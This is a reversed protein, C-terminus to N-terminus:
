LPPSKSVRGPDTQGTPREFRAFGISYRGAGATDASVGCRAWYPDSSPSDFAGTVDCIRETLLAGDPLHLKAWVRFRGYANHASGPVERVYTDAQVLQRGTSSTIYGICSVTQV